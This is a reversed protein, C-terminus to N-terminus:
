GRSSHNNVLDTIGKSCAVALPTWNHTGSDDILAGKKLLFQVLGLHGIIMTLMLQAFGYIDM